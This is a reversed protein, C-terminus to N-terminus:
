IEAKLGYAGGLLPWAADGGFGCPMDPRAVEPDNRHISGGESVRDLVLPFGPVGSRSAPRALLEPIPPTDLGPCRCNV